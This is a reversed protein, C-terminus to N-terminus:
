WVGFPAILSAFLALGVGVMQARSMQMGGDTPAVFYQDAACTMAASPAAQDM